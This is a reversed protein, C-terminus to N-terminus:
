PTSALTIAPDGFEQVWYIGSSGGRRVAIGLEKWRPDLIIDRHAPSDMWLKMAEAATQQGAALNEGVAYFPYMGAIARRGPGRGTTPDTHSFFDEMIMLCAYEAAIENLRDNLVVPAFGHAARELNVLQLVQDELVTTDVTAVCPEAVRASDAIAKAEGTPVHFCGASLGLTTTLLGYLVPRSRM